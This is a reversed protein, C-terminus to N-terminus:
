KKKKDESAQNETVVISAKQSRNSFNNTRTSMYHITQARDYRFLGIDQYPLAGDLEDDNQGLMAAAKVEEWHDTGFEGFMFNKEIDM